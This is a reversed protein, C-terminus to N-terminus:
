WDVLIEYGLAAVTNAVVAFYCDGEAETEEVDLGAKLGPIEVAHRCCKKGERLYKIYFNFQFKKKEKKRFVRPNTIDKMGNDGFHNLLPQHDTVIFHM